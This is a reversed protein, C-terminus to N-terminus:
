MTRKNWYVYLTDRVSPDFYLKFVTSSLYVCSKNPLILHYKMSCRAICIDKIMKSSGSPGTEYSVRYKIFCRLDNTTNRVCGYPISPRYLWCRRHTLLVFVLTVLWVLRVLLLSVLFGFSRYVGIVVHLRFSPLSNRHMYRYEVYRSRQENIQPWQWAVSITILSQDDGNFNKM